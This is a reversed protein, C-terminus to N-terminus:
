HIKKELDLLDNQAASAPTTDRLSPCKKVEKSGRCQVFDLPSFIRRDNIADNWCTKQSDDHFSWSSIVM